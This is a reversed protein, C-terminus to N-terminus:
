IKWIPNLNAIFLKGLFYGLITFFIGGGLMFLFINNQLKEIPQFDIKKSVLLYAAGLYYPEIKELHYIVENKFAPMELDPPIRYTGFIYRQDLDYIASSIGPIEPYRLKDSDSQHLSRLQSKIKGAEYKLVERQQDLLHHRASSYFIWSALAFLVFTSTLYILLFRILSRKESSLM